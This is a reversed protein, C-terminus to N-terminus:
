TFVIRRGDPTWVPDSEVARTDFTLRDLSGRKIDYTWIDLSNELIDLLYLSLDHM